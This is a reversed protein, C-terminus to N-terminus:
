VGVNIQYETFKPLNTIIFTTVNMAGGTSDLSTVNITGSTRNERADFATNNGFVPDADEESTDNSKLIEAAQITETSQPEDKSRNAESIARRFRQKPETEYDKRPKKKKEQRFNKQQFFPLFKM